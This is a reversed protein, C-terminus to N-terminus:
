YGLWNMVTAADITGDTSEEEWVEAVFIYVEEAECDHKRLERIARALTIRVGEASESYTM